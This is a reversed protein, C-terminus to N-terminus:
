VTANRSRTHLIDDQVAKFAAIREQAWTIDGKYTSNSIYRELTDIRGQLINDLYELDDM